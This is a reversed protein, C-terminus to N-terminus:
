TTETMINNVTIRILIGDRRSLKDQLLLFILRKKRKERTQPQHGRM